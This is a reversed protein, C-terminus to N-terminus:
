KQHPAEMEGFRRGQWTNRERFRKEFTNLVRKKDASWLPSLLLRKPADGTIRHVVLEPPLLEILDIVLEVYEELSYDNWFFGRHTTKGANEAAAALADKKRDALYMRGLETGRLVHLLQLKVGDICGERRCLDALYRVSATIEERSEGPLGVILHVTVPIGARSLRRVADEFVPLAYGRRIFIASKEHITQLGLELRVPKKRGLGTLMEIMEQPLCDPRTAISLELIDPEEAAAEYLKQLRETPGYTNTFSQFYAIYGANEPVKAAIRAKAARIQASVSLAAPAAFDGSGGESCFICGGTGLKGDRNPCTCGSQLSLKYVKKGYRKKMEYDLSHWRKERWYLGPGKRVPADPCAGTERDESRIM